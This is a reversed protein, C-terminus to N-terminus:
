RLRRLLINTTVLIPLNNIIFAIEIWLANPDLYEGTPKKDFFMDVYQLKVRPEFQNIVDAIYRSLITTTVADLPEFLMYNIEGGLSPQFVREYLSTLVLLKVSQKVSEEDTVTALDATIPNPLFSIDLDSYTSAM